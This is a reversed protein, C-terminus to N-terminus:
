APVGKTGGFYPVGLKRNLLEVTVNRGDPLLIDALWRGYKDENLPKFTEIRVNSGAPAIGRVFATAPKGASDEPTDIGYVRCELDHEHRLFLRNRFGLDLKEERWATLWLTDGDVWRIIKADYVYESM